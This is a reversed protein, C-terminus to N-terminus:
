VLEILPVCGPSPQFLGRPKLEHTLLLVTTTQHTLSWSSGWSNWLWVNSLTYYSGRPLFKVAMLGWWVEFWVQVELGISICCLMVAAHQHDAVLSLSLLSSTRRGARGKLSDIWCMGLIFVACFLKQGVELQPLGQASCGRTTGPHQPPEQPTLLTQAALVRQLCAAPQTGM